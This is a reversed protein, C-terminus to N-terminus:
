LGTVENESLLRVGKQTFFAEAKEPDSVKLIVWASDTGHSVFAYMYEIGVNEQELGSLVAYLGGPVDSVSIAIVPTRRVTFHGERLAKEAAEPKDVILRLIGFDTTDAISLARIDVNGNRLYALIEALRGTRNEVFVSLQQVM